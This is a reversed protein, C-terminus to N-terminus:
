LDDDVEYFPIDTDFLEGDDAQEYGEALTTEPEVPTIPIDELCKNCIDLYELTVPHKLVSEYDSLNRNCCVCRVKSKEVM